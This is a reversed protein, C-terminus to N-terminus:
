LTGMRRKPGAKRDCIPPLLNGPVGASLMKEHMAPTISEAVLVFRTRQWSVGLKHGITKFTIDKELMWVKLQKRRSNLTEM